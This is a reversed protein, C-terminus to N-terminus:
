PKGFTDGCSACCISRDLCGGVASVALRRAAAEGGAGSASGCGGACGERGERERKVIALRAHANVDSAFQLATRVADQRVARERRQRELAADRRKGMEARVRVM